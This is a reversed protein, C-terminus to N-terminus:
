GVVHKHRWMPFSSTYGWGIRVYALFLREAGREARKLWPFSGNGVTCFTTRTEPYTQVTHFVDGGGPNSGSGDLGYRTAIGVVNDYFRVAMVDMDRNTVSHLKTYVNRHLTAVYRCPTV